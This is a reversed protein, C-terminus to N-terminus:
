LNVRAKVLDKCLLEIEAICRKEFHTLEKVGNGMAAYSLERRIDYATMRPGDQQIRAIEGRWKAILRSQKVEDVVLTKM